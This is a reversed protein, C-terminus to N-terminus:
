ILVSHHNSHSHSGAGLLGCWEWNTSGEQREGEKGGDAMEWRGRGRRESHQMWSM